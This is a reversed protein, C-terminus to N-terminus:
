TSREIMIHLDAPNESRSRPRGAEVNGVGRLGALPRHSAAGVLGAFLDISSRIYGQFSCEPNKRRPCTARLAARREWSGSM